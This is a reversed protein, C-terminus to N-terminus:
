ALWMFHEIRPHTPSRLIWKWEELSVKEERNLISYATRTGLTRYALIELGQKYDKGSGSVNRPTAATISSKIERPLVMPLDDYNWEARDNLIEPAKEELEVGLFPGNIRNMLPVSGTWDDKWFRTASGDGFAWREGLSCVQAGM